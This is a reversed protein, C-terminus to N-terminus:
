ENIFKIIVNDTRREVRDTRLDICKFPINLEEFKSLATDLNVIDEIILKGGKRLKPYYLKVFSIQSEITHPGDDIIYDFFGDEFNENVFNEDYGDQELYLKVNETDEFLNFKNNLNEKIEIDIGYVNSNTFWKSWLDISDGERVGIELINLKEEKKPTFEDSYFQQIYSHQKGKDSQNNISNYFDTLTNKM